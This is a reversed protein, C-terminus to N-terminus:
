CFLTFSHKLSLQQIDYAHSMSPHNSLNININKDQGPALYFQKLSQILLQEFLPRM